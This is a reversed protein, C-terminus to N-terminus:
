SRGTEVSTQVNKRGVVQLPRVTALRQGLIAAHRDARYEVAPARQRITGLHGYTKEIMDTSSHGVERPVM